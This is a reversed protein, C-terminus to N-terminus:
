ALVNAEEKVPQRLFQSSSKDEVLHIASVDLTMGNGFDMSQQSTLKASELELDAFVANFNNLVSSHAEDALMQNVLDEGSTANMANVASQGAQAFNWEFKRDDIVEQLQVLAKEANTYKVVLVGYASQMRMLSEKQRSVDANPKEQVRRRLMDELGSIQVRIQGVAAKFDNVKKRKDLFFNQLQEIPNQRAEAKRLSLIKNEWKQGLYPILKAAGIGIVGLAGLALLWAGGIAAATLVPGVVALFVIAAVVALIRVGTAKEPLAVKGQEM